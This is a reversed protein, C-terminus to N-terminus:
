STEFRSWESFALWNNGNLNM